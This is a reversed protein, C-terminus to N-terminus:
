FVKASALTYRAIDLTETHPTPTPRVSFGLTRDRITRDVVGRFYRITRNILELCHTSLNLSVLVDGRKTTNPVFIITLRPVPQIPCEM